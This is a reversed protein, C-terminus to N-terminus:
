TISADIFVKFTIQRGLQLLCDNTLVAKQEKKDNVFVGNRSGLDEIWWVGNEYFLHAHKRSVYQSPIHLECDSTRGIRTPKTLRTIPLEVDSGPQCHLWLAPTRSGSTNMSYNLATAKFFVM